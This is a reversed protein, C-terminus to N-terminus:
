DSAWLRDDDQTAAWFDDFLALKAEDKTAYTKASFRSGIRYGWGGFEGFPDIQTVRAAVVEDFPVDTTMMQEPDPRPEFEPLTHIGIKYVEADTEEEYLEM